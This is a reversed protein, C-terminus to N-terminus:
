RDICRPEGGVSVLCDEFSCAEFSDKSEDLLEKLITGLSGRTVRLGVEEFDEPRRQVLQLQVVRLHLNQKAGPGALPHIEEPPHTEPLRPPERETELGHQELDAEM